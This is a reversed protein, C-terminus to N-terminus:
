WVTALIHIRQFTFSRPTCDCNALDCDRHSKRSARSNQQCGWDFNWVFFVRAKRSTLMSEPRLFHCHRVTTGVGSTRGHSPAIAPFSTRSTEGFLWTTEDVGRWGHNGMKSHGQRFQPLSTSKLVWLSVRESIQEDSGLLDALADSARGTALLATLDLLPDADKEILLLWNMFFIM